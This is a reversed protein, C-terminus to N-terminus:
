KTAKMFDLTKDMGAASIRVVGSDWASQIYRSDYAMAPNYNVKANNIMPMSRDDYMTFQNGSLSSYTHAGNGFSLKANRATKEFEELKKYIGPDAAEIILPQHDNELKYFDGTGKQNKLLLQNSLVFRTDVARVVVWCSPSKIFLYDSSHTTYKKLGSSIFIGMPINSNDRGWGGLLKRAMFSGKSQLAYQDSSIDNEHIFTPVVREPPVRPSGASILLGHWWGQATGRQWAEGDYPPRMVTGLIFNTTVWSYKLCDGQNFDYLNGEMVAAEPYKNPSVEKGLRRQTISYPPATRRDDLIRHIVEDPRYGSFLVMYHVALETDDPGVSKIYDLGKTGAGFYLWAPILHRETDPRLGRLGRHRVKGGGREGALEEEAWFAWYLDLTNKALERMKEDPSIDAILYWMNHMRTSYGGTSIELLFGKRARQQMHQKMYECTRAYHEQISRGDGLKRDKFDPDDQLALLYGWSTVIEQWWHNETSWYYYTQYKLSADYHSLRSWYKVYDLMYELLLKETKRTVAGKRATGRSGFQALVASHYEGAWYASDPDRVKDPHDLYWQAVRGLDRNSAADVSPDTHLQFYARASLSINFLRCFVVNKNKPHTGVPLENVPHEKIHAIVEAFRKGAETAAPLHAPSIMTALFLIFLSGALNRNHCQTNMIRPNRM